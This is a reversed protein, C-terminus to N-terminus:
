ICYKFPVHNQVWKGCGYIFHERPIIQFGAKRRLAISTIQTQRSCNAFLHARMDASPQICLCADM